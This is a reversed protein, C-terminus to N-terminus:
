VKEWGISRVNLKSILQAMDPNTVLQTYTWALVRQLSVIREVEGALSSLSRRSRSRSSGGDSTSPPVSFDEWDLFEHLWVFYDDLPM